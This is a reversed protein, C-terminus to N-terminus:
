DRLATRKRRADVVVLHIGPALSRLAEQDDFCFGGLAEFISGPLPGPEKPPLGTGNGGTKKIAAFGGPVSRTVRHARGGTTKHVDM